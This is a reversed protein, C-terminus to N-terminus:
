DQYILNIESTSVIWNVQISTHIHKKPRLEKAPNQIFSIKPSNGIDSIICLFYYELKEHAMHWEKDTLLIGGKEDSLGKVEVYFETNNSLIKFDYGVGFDRVDILEGPRPNSTKFHYKIFFDEAAKGTPNRTIFVGRDKQDDDDNFINLLSKLGGYNKYIDGSLIDKVIERVQLESLNELAQAIIERSISLPRQHWGARHEFLPDFEDRWNKVSNINIDLKSSVDEFVSKWTKYGLNILADKDYKALYYSIYLALKHNEKM